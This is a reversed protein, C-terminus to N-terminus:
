IAKCFITADASMISIIPEADYDDTMQSLKDDSVRCSLAAVFANDFSIVHPMDFRICGASIPM